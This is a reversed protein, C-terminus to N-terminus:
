AQSTTTASGSTLSTARALRGGRAIFQDVQDTFGYNFYPSTVSPPQSGSIAGGVAYNNGAIYPLGVQSPLIQLFNPSNSWIGAGPQYIGPGGLIPALLGPADYGTERLVRGTDSLSDGFSLYRSYYAQQAQASSAGVVAATLSLAFKTSRKM